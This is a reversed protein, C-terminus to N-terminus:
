NNEYQIENIYELIQKMVNIATENEIDSGLPKYYEVEKIDQQIQLRLVDLQNPPTKELLEKM